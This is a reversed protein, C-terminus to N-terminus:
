RYLRTVWEAVCAPKPESEIDITVLWIVQLGGTVDEVDHVAFRGRVRSGARVAAPFRVRNLGYNIRM